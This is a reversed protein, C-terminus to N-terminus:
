ATPTTRSATRRSPPTAASVLVVQPRVAVSLEIGRRYSKPVNINLADYNDNIQGTKVLQDKYDM